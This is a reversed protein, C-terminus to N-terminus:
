ISIFHFGDENGKTEVCNRHIGCFVSKHKVKYGCEKGKKKGNKLIAKCTLASITIHPIFAYIHTKFRPLRPQIYARCYPCERIGQKKNRKHPNKTNKYFTYYICEFHFIHNCPTCIIDQEAPIIDGSCIYCKHEQKALIPAYDSILSSSKIKFSPSQSCM